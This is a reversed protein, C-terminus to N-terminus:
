KRPKFLESSGTVATTSSQAFMTQQAFATSQSSQIAAFPSSAAQEAVAKFGTFQSAAAFGTLTTPISPKSFSSHAGFASGSPVPAFASSQMETGPKSSVFFSSPQSAPAPFASAVVPKAEVASGPKPSVFFSSQQPTGSTAPSPGPKSVAPGPKVVAPAPPKTEKVPAFLGPKGENGLQKKEESAAFLGPKAESPGPKNSSAAAFITPAPSSFVGPKAESTAPKNSDPAAFTTPAPSPFLGPKQAFPQSEPQPKAPTMLEAPKGHSKIDKLLAEYQTQEAAVTQVPRMGEKFELRMPQVGKVRLRGGEQGPTRMMQVLGSKGKGGEDEKGRRAKNVAEMLEMHAEVPRYGLHGSDSQLEGENESLEISEVDSFDFRKEQKKPRTKELYSNLKSTVTQLRKRISETTSALFIAAKSTPIAAPSLPKAPNSFRSLARPGINGKIEAKKEGLFGEIREKRADLFERFSKEYEQLLILKKDLVKLRKTLKAPLLNDLNQLLGSNEMNKIAQFELQNNAEELQLKKLLPNLTELDAKNQEIAAKIDKVRLSFQSFNSENLATNESLGRLKAVSSTMEHLQSIVYKYLENEQKEFSDLKKEEEITVLSTPIKSTGPKLDSPKQTSGSVPKTAETTKAPEKKPETSSFLPSAKPLSVSKTDEKPKSAFLPTSDSKPETLKFSGFLGTTPALDPKSPTKSEEKKPEPQIRGSGSVVEGLEQMMKPRKLVERQQYKERLDILRLAVLDGTMGVALVIPQSPLDYDEDIFHFPFRSNEYTSQILCLGRCLIDFRRNEVMSHGLPGKIKETETEFRAYNEGDEQKFVVEVRTSVTSAFVFYDRDRLLDIYGVHMGEFDYGVPPRFPNLSGDDGQHYKVCNELKEGSFLASTIVYCETNQDSDIGLFAWSDSTLQRISFVQSPTTPCTRIVNFDKISILLFKGPVALVIESGSSAFCCSQVKEVQVDRKEGNELLSVSGAKTLVLVKEEASIELYHIQSPFTIKAIVKKPAAEIVAKVSVLLLEDLTGIAALAGTSSLVVHTADKSSEIPLPYTPTLEGGKIWQIITPVTTFTVMAGQSFALLGFSPCHSLLQVSPNLIHAPCLAKAPCLKEFISWDEVGSM